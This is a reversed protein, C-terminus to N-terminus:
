FFRFWPTLYQVVDAESSSTQWPRIKLAKHKQNKKDASLMVAATFCWVNIRFKDTENVPLRIDFKLWSGQKAKLLLCMPDLKHHTTSVASYNKFAAHSCFFIPTRDSNVELHSPPNDSLLHCKKDSWVLVRSKRTGRESQTIRENWLASGQSPSYHLVGWQKLFSSGRWEHRQSAGTLSAGGGGGGGRCLRENKPWSENIQSFLEATAGSSLAMLGM